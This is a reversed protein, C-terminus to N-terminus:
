TRLRDRVHYLYLPVSAVLMLTCFLRVEATSFLGFLPKIGKILFPQINPHHFADLTVHLLAGLVAAAFISKRGFEQEIGAERLQGDIVPRFYVMFAGLIAATM